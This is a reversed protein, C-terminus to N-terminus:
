NYNDFLTKEYEKGYLIYFHTYKEINLICCIQYAVNMLTTNSLLIHIMRKIKPPIQRVYYKMLKSDICAWLYNRNFEISKIQYKGKLNLLRYIEKKDYPCSILIAGGPKLAKYCKEMCQKQEAERLYYIIDMCLILDYIGSCLEKDLISECYFNVNKHKKSKCIKIATEAIDIADYRKIHPNLDLLRETVDATACGIELISIDKKCSIKSIMELAIEIRKKQSARWNIGWNNGDITDCNKFMSDFYQQSFKM